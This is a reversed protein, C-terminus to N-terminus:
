GTWSSRTLSGFVVRGGSGTWAAVDVRYPLLDVASALHRKLEAVDWTAPKWNLVGDMLGLEPTDSAFASLILDGGPRLMALAQKLCADFANADVSDFLDIAYILDFSAAASQTELWSEPCANIRELRSIGGLRRNTPLRAGRDVLLWNEVPLLDLRMLDIIEPARGAGLALVRANRDAKARRVVLSQVTSRRERLAAGIGTDLIANNLLHGPEEAEVLVDLADDWGHAFAEVIDYPEAGSARWQCRRVMPATRLIRGVEHTELARVIGAWGLRSERRQAEGLLSTLRRVFSPTTAPDVFTELLRDFAVAVNTLEIELADGGTM